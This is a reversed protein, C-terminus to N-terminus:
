PWNLSGDTDPRKMEFRASEVVMFPVLERRVEPRLGARRVEVLSKVSGRMWSTVGADAKIGVEYAEGGQMGGVNYWKWKKPQKAQKQFIEQVTLGQTSFSDHSLIPELTANLVHEKGPYLTVFNNKTQESPMTNDDDDSSSSGMYCVIRSNRGVLEGTTTNTFTLGDAGLLNGNFLTTSRLDFTIPHTHNLTLSLSITFPTPQTLDFVPSSTTTRVAISLHLRPPQAM